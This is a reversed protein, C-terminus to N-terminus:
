VMYFLNQRNMLARIVKPNVLNNQEKFMAQMIPPLTAMLYVFQTHVNRILALDAMAQCYDSAIITLYAKNFVIRGLDQM